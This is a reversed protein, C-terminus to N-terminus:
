YLVGAAPTLSQGGREHDICPQATGQNSLDRSSLTKFADPVMHSARGNATAVSDVSAPCSEVPVGQGRQQRYRKWVDEVSQTVLKVPDARHLTLMKGKM